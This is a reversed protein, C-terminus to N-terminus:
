STAAVALVVVVALRAVEQSAVEVDRMVQDIALVVGKPQTAVKGGQAVCRSEVGGRRGAAGAPRLEALGILRMREEQLWRLGAAVSGRLQAVAPDEAFAAAKESTRNQKQTPNAFRSARRMGRWLPNRVSPREDAVASTCGEDARAIASSAM